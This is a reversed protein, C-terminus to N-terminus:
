LEHLLEAIDGDIGQCLAISMFSLDLSELLQFSLVQLVPLLVLIGPVLPGSGLAAVLFTLSIIRGRVLNVGSLKKNM